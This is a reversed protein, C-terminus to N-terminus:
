PLELRVEIKDGSPRGIEHDDILRLPHLVPVGDGRPGQLADVTGVRDHQGAGGQLVLEFLQDRDNLEDILVPQPRRPLQQVLVLDLILASSDGAIGPELLDTLCQRRDHDAV